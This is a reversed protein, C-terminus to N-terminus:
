DPHRAAVTAPDETDCAGRERHRRELGESRPETAGDGERATEGSKDRERDHDEQRSRDGARDARQRPARLGDRAAAGRPELGATRVLRAAEAIRESRHGVADRTLAM